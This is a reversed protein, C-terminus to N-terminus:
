FCEWLMLGYNFMSKRYENYGIIFWRKVEGCGNQCFSSWQNKPLLCGYLNKIIFLKKLKNWQKCKYIQLCCFLVRFSMLFIGKM